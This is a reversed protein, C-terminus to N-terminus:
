LSKDNTAPDGEFLGGVSGALVYDPLVPIAGNGYQPDSLPQGSNKYANWTVEAMQQPNLVDYGNKLPIQYGLYNDFNIQTKGAKGKKTTVEIVGNAGRVGYIAASGADKLVVVSQIDDPNLNNIDAPSGDVIYLPSVDGFNGYGHISILTGAGPTAQTIVNMGAVRGQLMSEVQGAPVATLEKPKVIAVSGTIDKVAEAVYGSVVVENLNNISKQLHVILFNDSSLTIELTQYGVFSILLLDGKAGHINFAGSSDTETGLASGKMIVTAGRLPLGDNDTVKGTIREQTHATIVQLCFIIALVYIKFIHSLSWKKM